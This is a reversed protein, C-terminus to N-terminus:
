RRRAHTSRSKSSITGATASWTVTNSANTVVASFSITGGSAVTATAPTVNVTKAPSVDIQFNASGGLSKSDKAHIGFYFTGSTTPSGSIIGTSRGLTLGASLQGWSISLTYPATGGSAGLPVSYSWGVAPPLTNGSVTLHAKAYANPLPLCLLLVGLTISRFLSHKHSQGHNRAAPLAVSQM